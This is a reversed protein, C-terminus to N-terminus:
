ECGETRARAIVGLRHAMAHRFRALSISALALLVAGVAASLLLRRWGEATWASLAAGLALVSLGVSGGALVAAEQRLERFHGAVHDGRVSVAVHDEVLAVEDIVRSWALLAEAAGMSVLGLLYSVAVTPVAVVIAWTPTRSYFDIAALLNTAFANAVLILGILTVAGVATAGSFGQLNQWSPQV